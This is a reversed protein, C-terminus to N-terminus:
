GGVGKKSSLICVNFLKNYIDASRRQIPHLLVAMKHPTYKNNRMIIDVRTAFKFTTHLSM